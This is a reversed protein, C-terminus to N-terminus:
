NFTVPVLYYNWKLRGNVAVQYNWVKVGNVTRPTVKLLAQVLGDEFSISNSHLVYSPNKLTVTTVSDTMAYHYFTYSGDDNRHLEVMLTNGPGQQNNNSSSYYVHFTESLATQYFAEEGFSVDGLHDTVVSSPDADQWGNVFYAFSPHLSQPDHLGQKTGETTADQYRDYARQKEQATM